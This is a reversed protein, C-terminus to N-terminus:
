PAVERRLVFTGRKNNLTRSGNVSPILTTFKGCFLDLNYYENSYKMALEADPVSSNCPCKKKKLNKASIYWDYEYFGVFLNSSSPTTLVGAISRNISITNQEKIDKKSFKTQGQKNSRFNPNKPDDTWGTVFAIIESKGSKEFRYALGKIKGSVARIQEGMLVGREQAEENSISSEVVGETDPLSLARGPGIFLIIDESNQAQAESVLVESDGRWGAVDDCDNVEQTILITVPNENSPNITKMEYVVPHYAYGAHNMRQALYSNADWDPTAILAEVGSEVGRPYVDKSSMSQRLQNNLSTAFATNGEALELLSTAETTESVLHDLVLKKYSPNKITEKFAVGYHYLMMNIRNNSEDTPDKIAELVSTTSCGDGCTKCSSILGNDGPFYDQQDNLSEKECSTLLLLLIFLPLKFYIKNQIFYNSKM